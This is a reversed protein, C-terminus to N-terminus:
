LKDDASPPPMALSDLRTNLAQMGETLTTLSTQTRTDNQDNRSKKPSRCEYSKHGRKGCNYCVCESSSDDRPRKVSGNQYDNRRDNGRSRCDRAIHGPKGCNYCERSDTNARKFNGNGMPPGQRKNSRRPARCDRSMHGKTGCNYCEIDRGYSQNTNNGGSVFWCQATTHKQNRPFPCTTCPIFNSEAKGAGERRESERDAIENKLEFLASTTGSNQRETAERIANLAELIPESKSLKQQEYADDRAEVHENRNTREEHMHHMQQRHQAHPKNRRADDRYQPKGNVDEPEDISGVASLAYLERVIDSLTHTEAMRLVHGAGWQWNLKTVFSRLSQANWYANNPTNYVTRVWKAKQLLGDFRTYYAKLTEGRARAKFDTSILREMTEMASGTGALKDFIQKCLSMWAYHTVRGGTGELDSGNITAEIITKYEANNILAKATTASVRYDGNDNFGELERFKEIMMPLDCLDEPKMMKLNRMMQKQVIGEDRNGTVHARASRTQFDTIAKIANAITAMSQSQSDEREKDHKREDDDSEPADDLKGDHEQLEDDLKRGPPSGLEPGLVGEKCCKHSCNQKDKCKHKCPTNTRPRMPSTQKKNNSM